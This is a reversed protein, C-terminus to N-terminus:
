VLYDLSFSFCTEVEGRSQEEKEENEIKKNTYICLHVCIVNREMEREKEDCCICMYVRIDVYVYASQDFQFSILLM